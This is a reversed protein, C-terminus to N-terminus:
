ALGVGVESAVSGLRLRVSQRKARFYARARRIKTGPPKISRGQAPAANAVDM